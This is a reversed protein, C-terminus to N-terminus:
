VLLCCVDNAKEERMNKLEFLSAFSDFVVFSCFRCSFYHDVRAKSRTIMKCNRNHKTKAMFVEVSKIMITKLAYIFILISYFLSKMRKSSVILSLFDVTNPIIKSEFRSRTSAFFYIISLYFEEFRRVKLYCEKEIIKEWIVYIFMVNSESDVISKKRKM